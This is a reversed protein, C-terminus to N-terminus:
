AIPPARPHAACPRHSPGARESAHLIRAKFASDPWVIAVAVRIIRDDPSDDQDVSQGVARDPDDQALDSSVTSVFAAGVSSSSAANAQAEGRPAGPTGSVLTLVVLLLPFLTLLARRVM